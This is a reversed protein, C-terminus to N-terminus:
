RTTPVSVRGAVVLQNSGTCWALKAPLAPPWHHKLRDGSLTSHIIVTPVGCAPCTVLPARFRFVNRRCAYPTRKWPRRGSGKCATGYGRHDLHRGRYHRELRGKPDLGVVFQCRGCYGEGHPSLLDASAM